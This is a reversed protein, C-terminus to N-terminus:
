SLPPGGARGEGAAERLRECLHTYRDEKRTEDLAIRLANRDTLVVVLKKGRTVATYLLNRSLMVFHSTLIPVVVAPYESGQSKHISCAYALALEDLQGEEYVVDRGDIEVVLRREATEAAAVFGVDGNFVDRSYDNRLQMVKDGVRLRRPGLAVDAGHPNLAQQLAANLAESGAAGKHMPALVQVDRRADLGFKRPIRDVVLQRIKDAAEDPGSVPVVFFDSPAGGPPEPEPMRGQRIAHAAEVIRSRAAQRFVQSLRVAPVVASDLVDRLVAGAGISPLQDVDGVLVLRAQAPVARLLACALSQDLMSCEDVVLADLELPRREDRAFGGRRPDTELLRHLTCADRGTAETMRRSARGTPAALGLRLGARSYLEMLARVITTKGVGPGGTVVLVGSRAAQSVAERQAQVLTAGTRREFAELAAGEGPLPRAGQRALRALRRALEREEAWRGSAYVVAGIAAIAETRVLAREAERDIAAEVLAGDVQTLREAELALAVRPAFVHGREGMHALVHLVAAGMREPADAGIGLARAIEDAKHFGIGWVEQALRYPNESVIRVTDAGYRRLIRIGLAASIGHGQLFVLADRSSRQEFWARRLSEVRQKGLGPVEALRSPDRDLVALTRDGFRRVIRAALAPGIGPILGSGLYRVLGELTDPELVLLTRARMQRGHKPDLEFRGTVRVRSGAAVRQVAGIVTLLGASGDPRVRLVRFGTADNEFTVREVLGELPEEDGPPQAGAQRHEGRTV